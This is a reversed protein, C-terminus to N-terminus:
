IGAVEDALVALQEERREQQERTGELEELVREALVREPAESATPVRAELVDGLTSYFRDGLFHLPRADASDLRWREDFAAPDTHVAVVLGVFLIHDGLPIAQQVECEVWAVCGALLPTDLHAANFTEFQTADLKDLQTGSVSGLYQVHHLLARGPFNLTFQESHNILDVSYRERSLAIGVLPPRGSLPTLWAVPLVNTKGRDSTTVLAVPGGQLIRAAASVPRREIHDPFHSTV